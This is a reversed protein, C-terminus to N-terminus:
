VLALAEELRDRLQERNPVCRVEHGCRRRRRRRELMAEKMILFAERMEEDSLGLEAQAEEYTVKGGTATVLDYLGFAQVGARRTGTKDSM